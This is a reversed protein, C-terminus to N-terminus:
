EAMRGDWLRIFYPGNMFASLDIMSLYGKEKFVIYLLKGHVDVLQIKYVKRGQFRVHVM